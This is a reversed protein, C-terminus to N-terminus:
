FLDKCWKLCDLCCNCGNKTKAEQGELQLETKKGNDEPYIKNLEDKVLKEKNADKNNNETINGNPHKQSNEDGIVNNNNNKLEINSFNDVINNDENNSNLNDLVILTAVAVM